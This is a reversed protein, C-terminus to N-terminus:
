RFREKLGKVTLRATRTTEPVFEYNFLLRYVCYLRMEDPLVVVTDLRLNRDVKRQDLLFEMSISIDPVHFALHGNPTMGTLHFSAGASLSEFVLSPHARQYFAPTVQFDNESSHFARQSHISSTMPMTAWCVPDPSDQTTKILQDPNEINPLQRQSHLRPFGKPM